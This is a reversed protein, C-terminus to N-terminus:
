YLDNGKTVESSLHNSAALKPRGSGIAANKEKGHCTCECNFQFGLGIWSGNCSIHENLKCYKNLFFIDNM